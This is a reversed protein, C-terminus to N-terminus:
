GSPPLVCRQFTLRSTHWLWFGTVKLECISRFLYMITKNLKIIKYECLVSKLNIGFWVQFCSVLVEVCKIHFNM